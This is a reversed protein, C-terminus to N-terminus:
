FFPSIIVITYDDYFGKFHVKLVPEEGGRSPHVVVQHVERGPHDQALPHASGRPLPPHVPAQGAQQLHEQPDSRWM